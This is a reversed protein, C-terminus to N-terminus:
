DPSLCEVVSAKWRYVRNQGDKTKETQADGYEIEKWQTGKVSCYGPAKEGCEKLAQAGFWDSAFGSPSRPSLDTPGIGMTQCQRAVGGITEDLSKKRRGRAPIRDCM